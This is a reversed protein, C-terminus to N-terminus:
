SKTQAENSNEVKILTATFTRLPSNPYSPKYPGKSIAYFRYVLSGQAENITAQYLIGQLGDYIM